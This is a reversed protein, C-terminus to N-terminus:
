YVCKLDLLYVVSRLHCVAEESVHPRRVSLERLFGTDGSQFLKFFVEQNQVM